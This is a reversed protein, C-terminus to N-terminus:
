GGLARRIEEFQETTIEGAALRRRAIEMAEDRPPTQPGPPTAPMPQQPAAMPQGPEPQGQQYPHMAAGHGGAPPVGMMMGPHHRHRTDRVIWVILIVVAALIVLWFFLVALGIFPSYGGTMMGPGYTYGRFM